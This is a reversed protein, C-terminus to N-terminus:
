MYELLGNTEIGIVTIKKTEPSIAGILYPYSIVQLQISEPDPPVVEVTIIPGDEGDMVHLVRLRYGPNPQPGGSIMGYKVGSTTTLIYGGPTRIKRAQEIIEKPVQGLDLPYFPFRASREM